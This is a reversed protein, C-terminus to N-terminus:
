RPDTSLSTMNATTHSAHPRSRGSLAASRQISAPAALAALGAPDASYGRRRALAALPRAIAQQLPAPITPLYFFEQPFARALLAAQLPHIRGKADIQEHDALWFIQAFFEALRMGPRFETIFRAPEDAEVAFTHPADPPVVFKEGARVRRHTRGIRGIIEGELIEFREEQFRHRHLPGAGGGPQVITEARLLEGSASAEVDLVTHIGLGEARAGLGDAALANIEQLLYKPTSATHTTM